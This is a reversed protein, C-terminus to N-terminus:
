SEEDAFRLDGWRELLKALVLFDEDGMGEAVGQDYLTRVTQAAPLPLRLRSAESLAIHLDKQMLRLKFHPSYDGRQLYLTKFSGVGTKGASNEFIEFMAQLPVGLRKALAYGELVGELVIAQSMNLAYKASQGLGVEEGVHVFHRATARIAKEAKALAAAPGGIMYTLRGGEAGLKSGTIPADLFWAKRQESAAALERTLPLSTTGTEVWVAGEELSAAIGMEGFSLSRLAEDNSVCTFVLEAGKTVEAPTAGRKMGREILPACPGDSRNYGHVEFGAELLQGVMGAGM